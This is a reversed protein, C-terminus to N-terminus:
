TVRVLSLATTTILVAVMFTTFLIVVPLNGKQIATTPFGYFLRTFLQIRGAQQSFIIYISFVSEGGGALSAKVGTVSPKLNITVIVSYSDQSILSM